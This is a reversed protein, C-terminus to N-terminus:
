RRRLIPDKPYMVESNSIYKDIDQGLWEVLELLGERQNNTLIENWFQGSFSRVKIDKSIPQGKIYGVLISLLYDPAPPLKKYQKVYSEIWSEKSPDQQASDVKGDKVSISIKM